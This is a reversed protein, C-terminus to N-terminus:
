KGKNEENPLIEVLNKYAEIVAQINIDDTKNINPLLPDVVDKFESISQQVNEIYEFAWDRSSSLFKIFGDDGSLANADKEAALTAIKELLLSRDIVMQTLDAKVKNNQLKLKYVLFLLTFIIILITAFIAIDLVAQM